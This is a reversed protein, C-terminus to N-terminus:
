VEGEFADEVHVKPTFKQDDGTLSLDHRHFHGGGGNCVSLLPLPPPYPVGSTSKCHTLLGLLGTEPEEGREIGRHPHDESLM